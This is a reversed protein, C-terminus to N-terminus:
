DRHDKIILIFLQAVGAILFFILTFVITKRLREPLEAKQPLNPRQIVALKKIARTTEVRGLELATLASRYLQEAFIAETGLREFEEIKTNLSGGQPAALRSNEVDIQTRIAAIQQELEVISPHGDVLFARQSALAIQLETRKAELQAIIAGIAEAQAIPSVIGEQNQYTIVKRRAAIARQNLNQVQKELFTVQSEALSHATANMFREGESVLAASIAQAKQPAFAQAHIILVGSYEDYEVTVRSTYYNYLDEASDGFSLRSFLDINWASYHDRLHLKKDLMTVVDRSLLYERMVLQDQRNGSSDGSLISTLDPSVNAILDTRQVIVRAESVYRDSAIILWYICALLSLAIAAGLIPNALLFVRWDTFKQKALLSLKASMALGAVKLGSPQDHEPPM